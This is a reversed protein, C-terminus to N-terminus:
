FDGLKIKIGSNLRPVKLYEVPEYIQRNSNNPDECSQFFSEPNNIYNIPNIKKCEPDSISLSSKNNPKNAEQWYSNITAPQTILNKAQDKPLKAPVVPKSEANASQHVISECFFIMLMLFFLKM